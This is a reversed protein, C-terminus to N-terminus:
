ATIVVTGTLKQIESKFMDSDSNDDSLHLLYVKKLKSIDYANLLEKFHELSMHSEFLRNKRVQNLDDSITDLSYNVEGMIINVDKFIYKIYYTDTFFLLREGTIKSTIVYGLPEPVDHQVDFPCISLTGIDFCELSRVVKFRYGSLGLAKFTGKSSYINIGYSALDKAAKAHDMHNHTLLVGSINRIQFRIHKMIEKCPIGCEILITTTGDSLRYCNGSSGSAYIQIDM